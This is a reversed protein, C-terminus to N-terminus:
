RHRGDTFFTNRPHYIGFFRRYRDEDSLTDYLAALGVDDDRRLPAYDVFSRGGLLSAALPGRAGEVDDDGRSKPDHVM